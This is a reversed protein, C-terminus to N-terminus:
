QLDNCHQGLVIKGLGLGLVWHRFKNGLKRGLVWYTTELGIGDWYQGINQWYYDIM